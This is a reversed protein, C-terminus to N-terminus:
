REGYKFNGEYDEHLNHPHGVRKTCTSTVGTDKDHRVVAGCAKYYNKGKYNLVNLDSTGFLEPGLEIVDDM